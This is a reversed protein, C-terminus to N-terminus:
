GWNCLKFLQGLALVLHLEGDTSIRDLSRQLEGVLLVIGEILGGQNAEVGLKLGDPEATPQGPVEAGLGCVEVDGGCVFSCEVHTVCGAEQDSPIPEDFLRRDEREVYLM